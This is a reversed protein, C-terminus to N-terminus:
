LDPRFVPTSFSMKQDAILDPNPSGPVVGGGLIGLLVGRRPDPAPHLDHWWLWRKSYLTPHSMETIIWTHSYDRAGLYQKQADCQGERRLEENLGWIGLAKNSVSNHCGILIKSIQSVGISNKKLETSRIPKFSCISIEELEKKKYFESNLKLQRSYRCLRGEGHSSYVVHVALPINFSPSSNKSTRKGNRETKGELATKIYM